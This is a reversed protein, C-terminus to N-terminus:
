IWIDYPTTGLFEILLLDINTWKIAQHQVHALDSVSILSSWKSVYAQTVLSRYTLWSINLKMNNEHQISVPLQRQQLIPNKM